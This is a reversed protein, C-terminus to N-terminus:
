KANPDSQMIGFQNGETDTCYAMWGVGPVGMKPTLVKGGAAKIKAAADEFSAVDITNVIPQNKQNARSNIGGDIGPEEKNGTGVLWYDVPGEWKQIQWGFASKYFEAARNPDDAAIEFHVVRPM